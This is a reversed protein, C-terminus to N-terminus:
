GDAVERILAAAAANGPAPLDAAALAEKLAAAQGGELMDALHRQLQLLDQPGIAVALGREAAAAARREQDDTYGAMQPIFIAPLRHYLIEHVSNYGAASVVLDAVLCLDLAGRTSVPVSRRWAGLGAAMRGNPWLVMLHLWDEHAEAEACITQLQASRDAAIGGGLMSVLLRRFPRGLREQLAARAARRAATDPQARQQVIPGVRRLRPGFSYDANLEAFAEQPVIVREFFAERELPTRRTQGAQWLGRRIWVGRAGRELLTRFISDFVYGGDFVLTDGPAVLQRLRLFNVLDARNSAPHDDPRAVLPHCAFGRGQLLPLCSPFAAFGVAADPGMAEAVLASRQAHGLGVGNTPVFLVRPPRPPRRPGGARPPADLGLAEELRALHNEATWPSAKAEAGLAAANPMVTGSLYSPLAAPNLPGRLAPAGGAVIDGAETGDIVVAGSAMANLCLQAMAAGPVAQGFVAVISARAALTAPALEAFGVAPPLPFPAQRILGKGKGSTVILLQLGPMHTLPELAAPMSDQELMTEPLVLVLNTEGGAGARCDVGFLPAVATPRLPRPQLEALNLLAPERGLAYALRARAGIANQRSDFRGIAQVACGAELRLARLRALQSDDLTEAGIVLLRSPQGPEPEALVPAADYLRTGSLGAPLCHADLQVAHGRRLLQHAFHLGAEFAREGAPGTEILIM